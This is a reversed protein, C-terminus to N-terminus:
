PGYAYLDKALIYEEVVEPVLYKISQNAGVLSRIRSSSIDLQTVGHLHIAQKSPHVLRQQNKDMEYAKDVYHRAHRAMEELSARSDRGYPDPRPMVIFPIKEFLREYAKWTEIEYFADMGIILYLATHGGSKEQFAAVTDITYSRGQRRIEVDSLAFGPNTAIARAIMEYRDAAGALNSADKHPPLAAPIFFVSDLNFGSKVEEAMRLHGLHVPNFTGGFLGARKVQPAM